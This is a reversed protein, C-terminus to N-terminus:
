WPQPLRVEASALTIIAAPVSKPPPENCALWRAHSSSHKTSAPRSAHRASAAAVQNAFRSGPMEACTSRGVKEEDVTLRQLIWRGYLPYPVVILGALRSTPM